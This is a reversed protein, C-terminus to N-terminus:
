PAPAELLEDLAVPCVPPVPQPALGDLVTPMAELADTYLGPVDLKQRMSPVFRRRAQALFGRSEALWNEADRSDPWAEAKLRHRLAQFLLSEVAHLQSRGVSEIEEALNPWDLDAENVPEGAARRRLLTSQHESWRVIDTDYTPM